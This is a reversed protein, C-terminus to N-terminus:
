VLPSSFKSCPSSGLGVRTAYHTALGNRKLFVKAEVGMGIIM